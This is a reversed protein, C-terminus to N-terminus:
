PWPRAGLDRKGRGCEPDVITVGRYALHRHGVGGAHLARDPQHRPFLVGRHRRRVERERHRATHADHLLGSPVSFGTASSEKMIGAAGAVGRVDTRAHFVLVGPDDVRSFPDRPSSAGDLLRLARAITADNQARRTFEADPGFAVRAIEYGLARAIWPAAADFTARDVPLKRRAMGGVGREGDRTHRAARREDFTGRQKFTLATRAV